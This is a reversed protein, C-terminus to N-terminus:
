FVLDPHRVPRCCAPYALCLGLAELGMGECAELSAGAPAIPKEVGESELGAVGRGCRPGCERAKSGWVGHLCGLRVVTWM